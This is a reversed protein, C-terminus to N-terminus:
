VESILRISSSGVTVADSVMATVVSLLVASFVVFCAFVVVEVAVLVDVTVDFVLLVAEDDASLVLESFASPFVEWAFPPPVVTRVSCFLLVRVVTILYEIM